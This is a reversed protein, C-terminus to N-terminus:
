KTNFGAKNLEALFDDDALSETGNSTISSGGVEIAGNTPPTLPNPDALKIVPEGNEKELGMHIRIEKDLEEKTMVKRLGHIDHLTSMWTTVEDKTGAPSSKTQFKSKTFDPWEGKKNVAVIFDKGTKLDTVDDPNLPDTLIADCVIDFLQKSMSIIKPGVNTKTEGTKMDTESRIIVNAYFRPHAKLSRYETQLAEKDEVNAAKESQKWLPAIYDCVPCTGTWRNKSDDFVRPCHINKGNIKHTRTASFFDRGETSPLIRLIKVGGDKPYTVFNELFNPTEHQAKAKKLSEFM